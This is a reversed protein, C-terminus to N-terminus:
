PLKEWMAKYAIYQNLSSPPTYGKGTLIKRCTFYDNINAERVLDSYM